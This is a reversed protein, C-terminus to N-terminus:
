EAFRYGGCMMISLIILTNIPTRVDSISGYKLQYAKVALGLLIGTSFFGFGMMNKYKIKENDYYKDSFFDPIEENFQKAEEHTVRTNDGKLQGQQIKFM